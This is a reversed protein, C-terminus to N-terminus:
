HHYVIDKDKARDLLDHLSENQNRAGNKNDMFAPLSHRNRSYFPLWHISIRCFHTNTRYGDQDQTGAKRGPALRGAYPKGIIVLDFVNPNQGLIHPGISGGKGSVRESGYAPICEQRIEHPIIVRGPSLIDRRGM